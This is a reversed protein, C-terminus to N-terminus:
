ININKCNCEMEKTFYSVEIRELFGNIRDLAVTLFSNSEIEYKDWEYCGLGSVSLAYSRLLEIDAEKELKGHMFYNRLIRYQKCVVSETFGYDPIEESYRKEYEKKIAEVLKNVYKAGGIPIKYYDILGHLMSEFYSFIACFLVRRAEVSKRYYEDQIEGYGQTMNSFTEYDCKSAEEYVKDVKLNLACEEKHYHVALDEIMQLLIDYQTNIEARINSITKGIIM